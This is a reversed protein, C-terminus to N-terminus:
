EEKRKIQRKERVENRSEIEKQKQTEMIRREKREWMLLVYLRRGSCGHDSLTKCKIGKWTRLLLLNESTSTATGSARLDPHPSV